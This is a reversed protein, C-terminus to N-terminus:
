TWWHYQAITKKEKKSYEKSTNDKDPKPILTITAKYFSNPLTGEAAIKQFLKLFIPMLQERHVTHFPLIIPYQFLFERLWYTGLVSSSILKLLRWSNTISLSARAHQAGHPWLSNSVVSHSLQISSFLGTDSILMSAFIMLLIRAFLIWCCILFIM